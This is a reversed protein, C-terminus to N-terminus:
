ALGVRELHREPVAVWRLGAAAYVRPLSPDWVDHPLWAGTTRGGFTKRLMTAHTEYQGVADAEPISSLVPEYMATGVLEIQGRDVLARIWDLGEPHRDSLDPVLEGSLVLGIRVDPTHHIAGLMPEFCNSWARECAAATGGAPLHMHVLLVLDLPTSM